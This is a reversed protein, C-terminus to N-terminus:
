SKKVKAAPLSLCRLVEQASDTRRLAGLRRSDIRVLDHVRMPSSPSLYVRRSTLGVVSNLPIASWKLIFHGRLLTRSRPCRRIFARFRESHGGGDMAILFEIHVLRGHGARDERLPHKTTRGDM